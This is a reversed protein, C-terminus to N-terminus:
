PAIAFPVNKILPIEALIKNSEPAECEKTSADKVFAILKFDPHSIGGIDTDLGKPIDISKSRTHRSQSTVKSPPSKVNPTSKIMKFILSNSAIRPISQNALYWAM